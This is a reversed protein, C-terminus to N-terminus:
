EVGRARCDMLADFTMLFEEKAQEPYWCRITVGLPNDHKRHWEMPALNAALEDALIRTDAEHVEAPLEVPLGFRKSVSRRWIDDETGGIIPALGKVPRGVDGFGSLSEPADHLLACLASTVGYRQRLWRATLVSHEAVSYHKEVAGSYRCIRSLGHAISEIFVEEPRPDFPFFQRDPWIQIFPGRKPKPVNDNAPAYKEIPGFTETTVDSYTKPQSPIVPAFAGKEVPLVGLSREGFEIRGVVLDAM